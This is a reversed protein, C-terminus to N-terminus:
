LIIPWDNLGAVILMEGLKHSTFLRLPLNRWQALPQSPHPIHILLEVSSGTEQSVEYGARM